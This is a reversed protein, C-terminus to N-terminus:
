RLQDRADLKDRYYGSTLSDLFGQLLRWLSRALLGRATGHFGGGRLLWSLRQEERAIEATIEKRDARPEGTDRDRM